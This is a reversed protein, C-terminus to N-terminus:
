DIIRLGGFRYIYLYTLRGGYVLGNAKITVQESEDPSVLLSLTEVTGSPRFRLDGVGPLITGASTWAQCEALPPLWYRVLGKPSGGNWNVPYLNFLKSGIVTGPSLDTLVTFPPLTIEAEFPGTGNGGSATITVKGSDLFGEPLGPLYFPAGSPLGLELRATQSATTLTITGADVPLKAEWHGSHYPFVDALGDDSVGELGPCVRGLFRPGGGGRCIGVRPLPAQLPPGGFYDVWLSDRRSPLNPVASNIERALVLRLFGDKSALPRHCVGSGSVPISLVQSSHRGLGFVPNAIQFPVACGGVTAIPIQINLQDVGAMGPAKGQWLVKAEDFAGVAGDGLVVRYWYRPDGELPPDSPAPQGEEPHPPGFGTGYLTVVDGPQVADAPELVRGLRHSWLAPLGCGSGDRTFIGLDAGSVRVNRDQATGHRTEVSMGSYSSHTAPIVLNIQTPSVYLLRAPVRTSSEDTVNFTVQTGALETPLPFGSASATETALNRGFITIISGAGFYRGFRPPGSLTAANVISLTSFEPPGQAALPACLAAFLLLAGPLSVARHSSMSVEPTRKGIRDDNIVEDFASILEASRQGVPDM